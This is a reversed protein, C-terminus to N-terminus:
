RKTEQARESELWENAEDMTEFVSTARFRGESFMEFMRMLGFLARRKVVIACADFRVRDRVKGITSSVADLQNPNPLSTLEGLDLLVDLREPCRPDESLARFHHIVEDFTVDGVCRTHIRQRISDIEYLVPM